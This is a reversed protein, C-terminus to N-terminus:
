EGKYDNLDATMSDKSVEIFCTHMDTTISHRIATILYNGNLLKDAPIKEYEHNSMKYLDLYVKQGVTYDTRGYVELQLRNTDLLKTLSMRRQISKSGSIDNNGKFLGTSKHLYVHVNDQHKIAQKSIPPFKNLHIKKDYEDEYDYKTHQFTKTTIDYTILMSSYAGSRLREIYDFSELVKIDLVRKYAENFDFKSIVSDGSIEVDRSYDDRKFTQFPEQQKYLSELSIFNLGNRNEFFLFTPSPDTNSDPPNTLAFETLYNLNQIPSWFNSVYAHFNSTEEINFRNEQRKTIRNSNDMEKTYRKMVESAINSIKDNFGKSIKVNLDVIAEVSIFHLVYSVMRNAAYVRDTIKYVYFTGSFMNKMEKSDSIGPTIMDIELFEEGIIPLRTILSMSDQMVITGSIFPSFLDEYINLERYFYNLDIYEGKSILRLKRIEIEGPFSLDKIM